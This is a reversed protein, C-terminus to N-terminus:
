ECYWLKGTVIDDKFFTYNYKELHILKCDNPKNRKINRVNQYAFFPKIKASDLSSYLNFCSFGKQKLFVNTYLNGYICTDKPINNQLAYKVIESQLNKNSVGLYDIEFNKQINTFKAFSNLWTYQYRKLSVNEIIFFIIVLASSYYFFKKNLIFINYLGILFLFPILFMIHRIEDYLAVNKLIFIFLLILPTLIFIGYYITKIDKKIIKEEIFPFLFLGLLIIIPLKFFFWIFAYSSPLNLARMCSGLTLTCIDHYYKGMWKVSSIIELPNHWLIPNLLYTFIILLFSFISFFFINKKIFSLFNINKVNLLIVLAVLYQILILIGTIRISILFATAFSIYFIIKVDIEKENYFKEIMSILFYTAIIWVSMFPIDKGNIQAHGFLYPYLLFLTVCILSFNKSDSVRLCILYFFYGSLSFILFVAVHRSLYYSGEFTVQYIKGVQEHILFQIPQSIYHFGIGHYKDLYELLVNYDGKDTFISQIAQFNIKWNLQEHFQDHSIGNTLSLFIGIFLYTLFLTLIITNKYNIM